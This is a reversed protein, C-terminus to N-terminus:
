GERLAQNPNLRVVRLTPALCALLAVLSVAAAVIGYNVPDRLASAAGPLAGAMPTLLVAAVGGGALGVGVLRLARGVVLRVLAAPDAGIALRVAFERQRSTVHFSIIGALGIAALTLALTAFLGIVWRYLRIETLSDRRIDDM